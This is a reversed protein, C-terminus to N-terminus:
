IVGHKRGVKTFVNNYEISGRGTKGLFVPPTTTTWRVLADYTGALEVISKIDAIDGKM